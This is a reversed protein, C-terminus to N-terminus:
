DKLRAVAKVLDDLKVPKSLFDDAGLHKATTGYHLSSHSTLMLAKMKPFSQKIQQLVQFGDIGPLKVDLIALFFDEKKLVTTAEEGSGVATVEYGESILIQKVLSKVIDDDDILLIRQM